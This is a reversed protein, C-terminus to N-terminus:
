HKSGNELMRAISAALMRHAKAPDPELAFELLMGYVKELRVTRRRFDAYGATALFVIITGLVEVIRAETM